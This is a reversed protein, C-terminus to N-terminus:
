RFHTLTSAVLIGHIEHEIQRDYKVHKSTM